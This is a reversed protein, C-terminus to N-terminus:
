RVLLFLVLTIKMENYWINHSISSLIVKKTFEIKMSTDQGRERSTAKKELITDRNPNYSVCPLFDKQSSEFCRVM